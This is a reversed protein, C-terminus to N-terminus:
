DEASPSEAVSVEVVCESDWASFGRIAIVNQFCESSELRDVIDSQTRNQVWNSVVLTTNEPVEEVLDTIFVREYVNSDNAFRLQWSGPVADSGLYYKALVSERPSVMVREVGYDELASYGRV